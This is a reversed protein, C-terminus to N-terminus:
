SKRGKEAPFGHRNWVSWGNILVRVHTFGTEILANALEKSLECTEGECYTIIMQANGLDATAKDFYESFKMWPLSRAGMIHGKEYDDPSRADLFIAAGSDFAAKADEVSVSIKKGDKSVIRAEPSWDGIMALRKPRLHNVTLGIVVSLMILAMSQWIMKPAFEKLVICM